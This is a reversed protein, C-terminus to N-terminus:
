STSSTILIFLVPFSTSRNINYNLSNTLGIRTINSGFHWTKQIISPLKM